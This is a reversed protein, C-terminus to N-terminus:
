SWVRSISPFHPELFFNLMKRYDNVPKLDGVSDVQDKGLGPWDGYIKGGPVAGFAMMVSARGHDTGLSQNEEVRRGFETMVILTVQKRLGGLDNMFANVSQAVGTLSIAQSGQEAGQIAHNDWGTDELSAIELGVNSKILSAVEKFGKGLASDPYTAKPDPMYNKSDLKEIKSLAELTDQGSKGVLGQKETYERRLYSLFEPDTNLQFDSISQIVLPSPAGRFSDPVTDSWAIARLPTDKESATQTLYRALWGSPEGSHGTSAGREMASMAEFHSRTRDESGVAHAFAAEGSEYWQKLPALVPHLAFQETLAIGRNSVARKTDNPAGISITPRLRYYQDEQFPVLMNLGDAGGRLFLVVLTHDSKGLKVQALSSSSLLWPVLGAVGAQLAQRRSMANFFSKCEM